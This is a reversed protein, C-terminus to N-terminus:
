RELPSIDARLTAVIERQTTLTAKASALELQAAQLQATLSEVSSISAVVQRRLDGITTERDVAQAELVGCRQEVAQLAEIRVTLRGGREQEKRLAQQAHEPRAM